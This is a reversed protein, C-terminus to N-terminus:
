HFVILNASVQLRAFFHATWSLLDHWSYTNLLIQVLEHKRTDSNTLGTVIDNMWLDLVICLKMYMIVHNKQAFFQVILEQGDVTYYLM